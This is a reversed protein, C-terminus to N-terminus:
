PVAEGDLVELDLALHRREAGDLLRQRRRDPQLLLPLGVPAPEAVDLEQLVAPARQRPPAAATVSEASTSAPATFARARSSPKSAAAQPGARTSCPSANARQSSAPWAAPM